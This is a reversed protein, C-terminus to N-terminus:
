WPARTLLGPTQPRVGWQAARTLLGPNPASGWQTLRERARM